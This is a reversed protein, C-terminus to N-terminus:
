HQCVGIRKQGTGVDRLGVVLCLPYSAKALNKPTAFASPDVGFTSPQRQSPVDGLVLASVFVALNLAM